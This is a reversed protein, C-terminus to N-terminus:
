KDIIKGTLACVVVCSRLRGHPQGVRSACEYIGCGAPSVAVDEIKDYLQSFIDFHGQLVKCFRARLGAPAILLATEGPAGQVANSLCMARGTKPMEIRMM